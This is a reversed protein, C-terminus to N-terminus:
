AGVNQLVDCLVRANGAGVTFASTIRNFKLTDAPILILRDHTHADLKTGVTGVMRGIPSVLTALVDGAAGGLIDGPTNWGAVSTDVGIASSAGGTFSTGVEWWADRPRLRAGAPVTFLTAADATAFTFPLTLAVVTDARLWAGSGATPTAVLSQTTDVAVSAASFQWLEFGGGTGVQVGCIMGDARAAAAIAKLATMTAVVQHIASAYAASMLGEAAPTADAIHHKHDQKSALAASGASAATSSPDVPAINSLGAAAAADVAQDVEVWVGESTVDYITGAAVTQVAGTITHDDLVYGQSERMAVTVPTGTDNDWLSVTRKRFFEINASKAGDAGGTNDVAETFRGVAIGISTDDGQKYYGASGGSLIAIAIANVFTVANAALPRRQGEVDKVSGMFPGTLPGSM